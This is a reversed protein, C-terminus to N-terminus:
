CFASVQGAASSPRSDILFRSFSLATHMCTLMVTSGNRIILHVRAVCCYHCLSMIHHRYKLLVSNVSISVDCHQWQCVFGESVDPVLSSSHLDQTCSALEPHSELLQTGICKLKSHFIHFHAHAILESQSGMALFECGRWLCPYDEIFSVIDFRIIHLLHLKCLTTLSM